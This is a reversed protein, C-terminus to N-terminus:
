QRNKVSCVSDDKGSSKWLPSSSLVRRHGGMEKLFFDLLGVQPGSTRRPTESGEAQCVEKGRKNKHNKEVSHLECATSHVSRLCVAKNFKVQTYVWTAVVWILAHFLDRTNEM